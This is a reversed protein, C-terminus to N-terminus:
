ASSKPFTGLPVDLATPMVFMEIQGRSLQWHDHALKAATEDDGAAIADIIADHQDSATSLNGAMKNNQPRYFTIGIRAHDILLRYFSPLLYINAAMEGTIEHFRNNALARESASGSRLASKFANQAERLSTIQEATANLAALRLVASYIMPAALFFDRLTTHSMEAVRAGRGAHLQLYGEGALERFVERLPTRSLGFSDSLAVEDLDAGPRLEMTLISTKLHSQLAQKRDRVTKEM